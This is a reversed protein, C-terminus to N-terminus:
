LFNTSMKKFMLNGSISTTTGRGFSMRHDLRFLSMLKDKSITEEKNM